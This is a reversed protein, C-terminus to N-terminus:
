RAEDQRFAPDLLAPRVLAELDLPEKLLGAERMLHQTQQLAAADVAGDATFVPRLADYAEAIVEVPLKAFIRQLSALAAQRGQSTQLFRLTKAYGRLVRLLTPRASDLRQAQAVLVADAFPSLEAFDGRPGSLLISGYGERVAITSLPPAQAFGDALGDRMARLQEAQGGPAVFLPVTTPGARGRADDERNRGGGDRGGPAAPAAGGLRRALHLLLLHDTANARSITLAPARSLAARLLALRQTLPTAHAERQEHGRERRLVVEYSLKDSTQAVVVLPAGLSAALLLETGPLHALDIREEVLATVTEVGPLLHYSFRVGQEEVFKEHAAVYSPTFVFSHQPMAVGASSLLFLPPAPKEEPLAAGAAALAALAALWM